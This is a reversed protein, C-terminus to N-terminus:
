LMFEGNRTVISVLLQPVAYAGVYDGVEIDLYKAMDPLISYQEVTDDNEVELALSEDGNNVVVGEVFLLEDANVSSKNTLYESKSSAVKLNNFMKIPNNNYRDTFLNEASEQLEARNSNDLSYILKSPKAKVRVPRGAGAKKIVKPEEGYVIALTKQILEEKKKTTPSSVGIDRAIDRLEHINLKYLEEENFNAFDFSM